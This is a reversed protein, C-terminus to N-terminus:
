NEVVVKKAECRDFETMESIQPPDMTIFAETMQYAVDDTSVHNASILVAYKHACGMSLIAFLGIIGFIYNKVRTFM